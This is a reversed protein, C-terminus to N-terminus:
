YRRGLWSSLFLAFVLWDFAWRTPTIQQPNDFAAAFSTGGLPTKDKPLPLEVLESLTPFLDVLEVLSDVSVGHSQPKWPVHVMLPVRTARERDCSCLRPPTASVLTSRGFTLQAQGM